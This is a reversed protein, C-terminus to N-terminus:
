DREVKTRQHHSFVLGIEKLGKMDALFILELIQSLDM